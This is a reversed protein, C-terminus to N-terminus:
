SGCGLEARNREEYAIGGNKTLKTQLNHVAAWSLAIVNKM